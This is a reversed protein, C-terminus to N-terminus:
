SPVPQGRMIAEAIRCLQARDPQFARAVDPHLGARTEALLRRCLQDVSEDPRRDAAVREAAARLASTLQDELADHLKREVPHGTDVLTIGPEPTVRPENM